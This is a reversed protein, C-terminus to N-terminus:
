PLRSRAAITGNVEEIPLLREIAVPDSRRCSNIRLLAHEEPEGGRGRRHGHLRSSWGTWSLAGFLHRSPTPGIKSM